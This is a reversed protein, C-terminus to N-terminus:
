EARLVEIPDVRSARLAPVLSAAIAVALLVLPVTAFTLPDHAGVGFLMSEIVRVAAVAAGVGIVIGIAAYLAGRGLVARAIQGRTAGVAVRIGIERARQGVLFAQLRYLGVTALLLGLGGFMGVLVQEVGHLELRACRAAEMPDMGTHVKEEVLMDLYSQLEEDLDRDLEGKRFLSQSVSRMWVFPRM